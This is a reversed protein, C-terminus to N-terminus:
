QTTPGSVGSQQTTHEHSGCASPGLKQAVLRAVRQLGPRGPRDALSEALSVAAKKARVLDMRSLERLAVGITVSNKM